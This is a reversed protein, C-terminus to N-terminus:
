MCISPPQFVDGNSVLRRFLAKAKERTAEIHMVAFTSPGLRRRAETEGRCVGVQLGIQIVYYKDENNIPRSPPLNHVFSSSAGAGRHFASSNKSSSAMPRPDCNGSSRQPVKSSSAFASRDPAKGRCTAALPSTKPSLRSDPRAANTGLHSRSPTSERMAESLRIASDDVSPSSLIHYRYTDELGAHPKGMITMIPRRIADYLYQSEIEDTHNAHKVFAKGVSRLKTCLVNQSRSEDLVDEAQIALSGKIYCTYLTASILTIALALLRIAPPGDCNGLITVYDQFVPAINNMLCKHALIVGGHRYLLVGGESRDSCTRTKAITCAIEYAEMASDHIADETRKGFSVSRNTDKKFFFHIYAGSVAYWLLTERLQHSWRGDHHFEPFIRKDSLVHKIIYDIVELLLRRFENWLKSALPLIIQRRIEAIWIADFYARWGRLTQLDPHHDSPDPYCFRLLACIIDPNGIAADVARKVHEQIAAQGALIACLLNKKALPEVVSIYEQLTPMVWEENLGSRTSIPGTFGASEYSDLNFGQFPNGAGDPLRVTWGLAGPAAVNPHANSPQTYVCGDAISPAWLLEEPYHGFFTGATDESSTTGSACESVEFQHSLPFPPHNPGIPVGNSWQAYPNM